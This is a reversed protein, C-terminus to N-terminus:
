IWKCFMLQYAVTLCSITSWYRLKNKILNFGVYQTRRVDKSGKAILLKCIVINYLYTHIYIYVHTINRLKMIMNCCLQWREDHLNSYRYNNQTNHSCYPASLFLRVSAHVVVASVHLINGIIQNTSLHRICRKCCMSLIHECTSNRYMYKCWM